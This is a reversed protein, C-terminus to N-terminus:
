YKEWFLEERLKEIFEKLYRQKKEQNALQSIIEFDDDLNPIHEEIMKKKYVIHYAPKNPDMNYPIPDSIEGVDMNKLVEAIADPIDKYRLNGIFGGFGKTDKDESFKKALDEFNNNEMAQKKIDNLFAMTKEKDDETTQISFVIHRTNIADEKKELTQIIHFGFPTEIPLSLQDEQLSFAASEFEPVLMGKNFWGLNGGENKTAPDNSYIKAMEGFDAGNLISDRVNKALKYIESKKNIDTSIYKVIHYVSVKQPVIELSDKYKDYFEAVESNTANIEAFTRQQLKQALLNKKIQDSYEYKLRNITKGYIDEVRKQSGYRSILNNLANEWAMELEESSVEISDEIAKTILLNQDIITKLALEYLEDDSQDKKGYQKMLNIEALVEAKTIIQDGVVAAIKNLSEGQKIQQTFLSIPLIYFVILLIKLKM